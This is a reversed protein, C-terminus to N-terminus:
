RKAIKELRPDSWLAAFEQDSYVRALDPYHGEKARRLYELAGDLNGKKAYSKAILYSIRARQEPTTVQAVVGGNDSNLIDANLELARSYETMARDVEGLGMWAEAINLHATANSEDLALAQKLYNVSAKYKKDMLDMVGLNNLAAVSRSDLKVAQTLHKRAANKDGLQFEAIALKDYLMSNRPDGRVATLYYTVAFAYDKHIRAQDGEQEVTKATATPSKPVDLLSDTRAQGATCVMLSAVLLAKLLGQM